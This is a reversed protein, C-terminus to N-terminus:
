AISYKKLNKTTYFRLILNYLFKTEKLARTAGKLIDLDSGQTDLKLFDPNPLNNERIVSDLFRTTTLKPSTNKYALGVERYVSDGVSFNAYFPVEVGDIKGLLYNFYKYGTKEIRPNHYQNPEFM